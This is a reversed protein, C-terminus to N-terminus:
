KKAVKLSKKVLSHTMSEAHLCTGAVAAFPPLSLSFSSIIPNLTQPKDVRDTGLDGSFTALNTTLLKESNFESFKTVFGSLQCCQTDGTFALQAGAM